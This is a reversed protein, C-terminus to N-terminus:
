RWQCQPMKTGIGASTRPAAGTEKAALQKQMKRLLHPPGWHGRVGSPPLAHLRPFRFDCDLIDIAGESRGFAFSNVRQLINIEFNFISIRPFTAVDTLKSHKETGGPTALGCQSAQDGTQVVWITA